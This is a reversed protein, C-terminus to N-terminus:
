EKVELAKKIILFDKGKIPKILYFGEPICDFPDGDQYDCYQKVIEWAELETKIQQLDKLRQECSKVCKTFIEENPYMKLNDLFKEKSDKCDEILKTILELKNM